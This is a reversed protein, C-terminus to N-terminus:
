TPWGWRVMRDLCWLLGSLSDDASPVLPLWAEGAVGHLTAALQAWWVRCPWCCARLQGVGALSAYRGMLAAMRFVFGLLAWPLCPWCSGCARVTLWSCTPLARWRGTLSRCPPSLTWATTPWRLPLWWAGAVQRCAVLMAGILLFPMVETSTSRSPCCGRGRCQDSVHVHPWRLVLLAAVGASPMRRFYSCNLRLALYGDMVKCHLAPGTHLSRTLPPSTSLLQEIGFALCCGGAPAVLIMPGRGALSSRHHCVALRPSVACRWPVRFAHVTARHALCFSPQPHALAQEPVLPGDGPQKQHPLARKFTCPDHPGEGPRKTDQPLGGCPPQLLLAAAGRVARADMWCSGAWWVPPCWDVPAFQCVCALEPGAPGPRLISRRAHPCPQRVGRGCGCPRWSGLFSWPHERRLLRPSLCFVLTMDCFTMSPGPM